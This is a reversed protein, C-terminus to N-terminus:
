IGGEMLQNFEEESILDKVFDYDVKSLANYNEKDKIKKYFYLTALYEVKHMECITTTRHCLDGSIQYSCGACWSCGQEIPCALCEPKSINKKTYNDFKKLIEKEKDTEGIGHEINGIPLPPVKDGLSSEMFRICSYIDGKWDLSYMNTTTGCWRMHMDDEVLPHYNNPDFVRFYVKDNLSNDAIYDAIKKLEQYYVKATETDWVDEFVCNGFIITYGLEIMNKFGKFVYTINDPSFTMKTGDLGRAMVDLGANKALEYSGEGNPFLRCKDHLEQCGDITISIGILYDYKRIFKQVKPTFYLTGNSCLSYAHFLQWTCDVPCENLKLEIYDIIQDILDIELLPEGGIFDFTLGLTTGEYFKSNPDTRGDFIMDIFKKATDLPMSHHGKCIQYCYSCRLNCDDTAQFTINKMVKDKYQPFLVDITDAYLYNPKLM